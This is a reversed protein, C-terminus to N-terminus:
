STYSYTDVVADDAAHLTATDGGANNWVAQSRGAYIATATPTGPGTHIRLTGGPAITVGAPIDLRHNALDTIYWGAVDAPGSGVNRLQVYEGANPAIDDGDPNFVITSITVAGSGGDPGAPSDPEPPAAPNSSTRGAVAASAQQHLAQAEADTLRGTLDIGGTSTRIAAATSDPLTDRGTLLIPVNADAARGAAVLGWTWADFTYGDVVIWGGSPASWLQDAIATATTDRTPGAVRIADPGAQRQVDDSLAATGGLLVPQVAPHDTLFAVVAPHLRDSGTLLLPSGTAAAWGGATVSDAFAVSSHADAPGGARAIGVRAADPNRSLVERAVAVATEVRTAGALRVERHPHPPQWSVAEAGGLVYVTGGDPFLRDLEDAVDQQDYPDANVLLLPGTDTLPTGALADAFDSPDQPGLHFLNYAGAVVAHTADGATPFRSQSVEVSHRVHQVVDTVTVLDSDPGPQGVPGPGHVSDADIRERSAGGTATWFGERNVTLIILGDAPEGEQPHGDGHLTQLIAAGSATYADIVAPQPHGFDNAGVTVIALEAALTDIWTANSSFLSGHHNVKVVDVDGIQGAVASEVDARGPGDAGGIDGCTAMAFGGPTTIHWCVGRDNSSEVPLGGAATGDYGVSVVEFTVTQETDDPCLQVTDGIDIVQLDADLDPDRTHAWYRDFTVSDHDSASLFGDLYTGVTLGTDGTFLPVIDGLHDADAHSPAVYEVHPDNRTWMVADAVWDASGAGADIIMQDGCSGEYLAADGQGFPPFIVQLTPPVIVLGGAPLAALLLAAVALVIVPLAPRVTAPM